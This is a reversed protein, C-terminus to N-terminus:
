EPRRRPSALCMAPVATIGEAPPWSDGEGHCVVRLGDLGLVERSLRMSATVTRSDTRMSHRVPGDWEAALQRASATKGVKRPGLMAVVPFGALKHVLRGLRARRPIMTCLIVILYPIDASNMDTTAGPPIMPRCKFWGVGNVAAVAAARM